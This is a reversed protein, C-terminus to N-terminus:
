PLPTVGEPRAEQAKPRSGTPIYTADQLVADRNSLRTVGDVFWPDTTVALEPVM